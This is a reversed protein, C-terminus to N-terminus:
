MVIDLRDHEFLACATKVLGLSMMDMKVFKVGVEPYSAKVESILAEGAKENRGTFYIFAPNHKALALVSAKGL